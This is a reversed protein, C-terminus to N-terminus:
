SPFEANVAQPAVEHLRHPFIFENAVRTPVTSLAHPWNQASRERSFNSRMLEAVQPKEPEPVDRIVEMVDAGDVAVLLLPEIVFEAGDRSLAQQVHGVVVGHIVSHGGRGFAVRVRTGAEGLRQEESWDTNKRRLM